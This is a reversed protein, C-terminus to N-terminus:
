RKNKINLISLFAEFHNNTLTASNGLLVGNGSVDGVDVGFNKEVSVYNIRSFKANKLYNLKQLLWFDEEISSFYNVRNFIKEDILKHMGQFNKKNKRAILTKKFDLIYSLSRVLWRIKNTYKLETPKTIDKLLPWYDAGWGSWIVVCTTSANKIALIGAVTMSHIVLGDANQVISLYEQSNLENFDFFYTNENKEAYGHNKSSSEGVIVFINKSNVLSRFSDQIFKSFKDNPLIHTINKM